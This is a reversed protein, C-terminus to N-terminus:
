RPDISSMWRPEPSSLKSHPQRTKLKARGPLLLLLRSHVVTLSPWSGLVTCLCRISPTWTSLPRRKVRGEPCSASAKLSVFFITDYEYDFSSSQVKRLQLTFATRMGSVLCQPLCPGGWLLWQLWPLKRLPTSRLAPTDLLSWTPSWCLARWTCM